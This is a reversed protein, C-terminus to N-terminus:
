IVKGILHINVNSANRKRKWALAFSTNVGTVSQYSDGKQQDDKFHYVKVKECAAVMNEKDNKDNNKNRFTSCQCVIVIIM